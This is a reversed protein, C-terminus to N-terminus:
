LASLSSESKKPGPTSVFGELGGILSWKKVYELETLPLYNSNLVRSRMKRCSIFCDCSILRFNKSNFFVFVFFLSVLFWSV